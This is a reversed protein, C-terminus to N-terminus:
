GPPCPAKYLTTVTQQPLGGLEAFTVEAKVPFGGKPCKTPVRGYYVTETTRHGGKEKVVRRAAGLKGVIREVSADPAGPVTEVLPVQVIAKPGYGGGGGFATFRGTSTVEISAPAHGEVYFNIGGGPAFFPEIAVEEPVREGGFVVFGFAHGTPGARSGKPCKAPEHQTVLVSDPCTPFGSPFLRTGTPLSLTIGIVPPPYGGYETGKITIEGEVDAGAGLINGTHPFGPIPVAEGKLTVVPTAAATGALMLAVLGAMALCTASRRM